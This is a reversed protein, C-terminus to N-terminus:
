QKNMYNFWGLAFTLGYSLEFDLFFLCSPNHLLTIICVLAVSHLFHTNKKHSTAWFYLLSSYLARYFSVSSWSILAYFCILVSMILQKIVYALPIVRLLLLWMYIFLALHLGSRALYHLLGWNRFLDAWSSSERSLLKTHGLFLCAFLSGTSKSMKATLSQVVNNKLQHIWRMCSYNPRELLTANNLNYFLSGEVGEKMLYQDYAGTQKKRITVHPILIQDAVHFNTHQPSLFHLTVNCPQWSLSKLPKYQCIHMRYQYQRPHHTHYIDQITGILDSTTQLLPEITMQHADYQVHYRWNGITLFLAFLGASQLLVTHHSLFSPPYCYCWFCIMAVLLSYPVIILGLYVSSVIGIILGTAAYISIPLKMLIM